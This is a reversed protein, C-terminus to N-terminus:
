LRVGTSTIVEQLRPNFIVYKNYGKVRTSEKMNIINHFRMKSTQRQSKVPKTQRKYSKGVLFSAKGVKIIQRKTM